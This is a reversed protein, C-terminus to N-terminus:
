IRTTHIPLHEVEKISLKVGKCCWYGTQSAKMSSGNVLARSLTRSIASVIHGDSTKAITEYLM